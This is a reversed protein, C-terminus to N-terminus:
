ETKFHNYINRIKKFNFKIGNILKKVIFYSGINIITAVIGLAINLKVLM